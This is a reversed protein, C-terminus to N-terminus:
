EVSWGAGREGELRCEGDAVRGGEEGELRCGGGPFGRYGGELAGEERKELVFVM